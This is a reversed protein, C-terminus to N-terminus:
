RKLCKTSHWKPNSPPYLSHPSATKRQCRAVSRGAKASHGPHACFTTILPRMGPLHLNLHSVGPRPPRPLESGVGLGPALRTQRGPAAAKRRVPKGLGEARWGPQNRGRTVTKQIQKGESQPNATNWHSVTLLSRRTKNSNCCAPQNLIM